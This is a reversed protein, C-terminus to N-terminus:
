NAEWYGAAVGIKTLLRRMDLTATYTTLAYITEGEHSREIAKDLAKKLNGEVTLRAADLGAYKMRLAMDPARTGSAIIFRALPALEEFDVDWIWSVDRGDAIRDNLAAVIPLDRGETGLTRIVENFGTPNKSLVLFLTRGAIPIREGRGFATSYGEVGAEINHDDLGLLEAGGVAALLNQVNYLGPLGLNLALNWLPTSIDLRSGATGKLEVRTAAFDVAPRELGCNPCSYKGMHGFFHASFSLKEGCSRCNKSDAAHRLGIEGIDESEIGYFYKRATSEGGLSAVLPDDANLLICSGGSLGKLGADIKRSLSELEGYRDLQDRFLNTLIVMRPTLRKIAAPLTAEDVEFLGIDGRPKGRRDSAQALSATIGTMLNAGVKNHVPQLGSARLMGALLNSTTTKGNTGSVLVCGGTLRSAIEEPAEPRMRLIVKGPFNSGAGFGLRRSLATLIKGTAVAVSLSVKM